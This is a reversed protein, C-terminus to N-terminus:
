SQGRIIRLMDVQDLLANIQADIEAPKDFGPYQANLATIQEWLWHLKRDTM